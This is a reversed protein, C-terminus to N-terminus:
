WTVTMGDDATELNMMGAKCAARVLSAVENEDGLHTIIYRGVELTPAVEFFLQKDVHTLETVVIDCGDLHPRIDEFDGIDASYLLRTGGCAIKFLFCQLRNPVELKEVLDSLKDLHSTRVAELTFEGDYVTGEDYGHVQLPFSLREDFLYVAALWNRFPEVLEDPLYIDLPAERGSLYILQIFLSLECVHDSHAHSIFIRDVSLPDCGHRIFSSTVGGGCDILTSSRGTTLLYGSCARHPQPWGSSSGLVVFTTSSM